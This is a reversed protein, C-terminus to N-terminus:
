AMGPSLVKVPGPLSDAINFIIAGGIGATKMAELDASIGARTINGGMWYWLVWPRASEPPSRFAEALPTRSQAFATASWAFGLAWAFLGIRVLSALALRTPRPSAARYYGRPNVLRIASPTQIQREKHDKRPEATILPRIAPSILRKPCIIPFRPPM